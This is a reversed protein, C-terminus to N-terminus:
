ASGRLYARGVGADAHQASESRTTLAAAPATYPAAAATAADAHLLNTGDHDIVIGGKGSAVRKRVDGRWKGIQSGRADVRNDIGLGDGGGLQLLTDGGAARERGAVVVEARALIRGEIGDIGGQSGVDPELELLGQQM